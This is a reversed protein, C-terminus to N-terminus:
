TEEGDFRDLSARVIRSWLLMSKITATEKKRITYILFPRTV